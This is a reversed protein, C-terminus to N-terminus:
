RFFYSRPLFLEGNIAMELKELRWCTGGLRGLKALSVRPRDLAQDRAAQLTAASRLSIQAIDAPNLCEAGNVWLKLPEGVRGQM